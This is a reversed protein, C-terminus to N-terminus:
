RPLVIRPNNESKRYVVVKRGITQVPECGLYAILGTMIDKVGDPSTELVTIKILERAELAADLTETVTETIGNKGIQYLAEINQALSRLYARQKTTIM